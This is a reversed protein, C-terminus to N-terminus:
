IDCFLRIVKGQQPRWPLVSLTEPDPFLLLDSEEVNLFGNISSADFNIGYEFARELQSPMITMNKLNGFIDCFQLRIFKVDNDAAYELVDNKTHTM